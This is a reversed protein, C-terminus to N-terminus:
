HDRPGNDRPRRIPGARGRLGDWTGRLCAALKAFKEDELLLIELIVKAAYVMEFAVWHPVAGGHRRMLLIRNRFLYRLRLPPMSAPWWTRGLFRVARKEGRRHLLPAGASVRVDSGARRARLCYDTDVLDLFLDQDFGGLARWTPLHFLSGSTIVCTIADLDRAAIPRQFCLPFGPHRRLHRSPFGPRGEDVWNAGIVAVNPDGRAAAILAAAFGPLPTSDQDFAVVWTFHEEALLAFAQNLAAALGCNERNAVLQAGSAACVATLQSQVEPNASNDIVLLRDVERAIAALRVGFEADPFYTVVVGALPAQTNTVTQTM